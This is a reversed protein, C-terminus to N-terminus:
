VAAVIRLFLGILEPSRGSAHKIWFAPAGAGMPQNSLPPFVIRLAWGFILGLATGGLKVWPPFVNLLSAAGLGIILGRLSKAAPRYGPKAYADDLVIGLLAIISPGAARWLITKGSLLWPAFLWAVCIFCLYLVLGQVLVVAGDSTRRIRSAIVQPV